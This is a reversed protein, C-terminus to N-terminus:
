HEAVNCLTTVDLEPRYKINSFPSTPSKACRQLKIGMAKSRNFAVEVAEKVYKDSSSAWAQSGSRDTVKKFTSGLYISPPGISDKKVYYRQTLQNMYRTPDHSCILIDDVYVLIYTYYNTGDSRIDKRLWVDNDALSFQFGMDKLTTCLHNRWANASTKLGYLARIIVCITGQVHTGM